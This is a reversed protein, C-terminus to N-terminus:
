STPRGPSPLSPIYTTSGMQLLSNYGNSQPPPPPQNIPWVLACLLFLPAPDLACQGRPPEPGTLLCCYDGRRFGALSVKLQLQRTSVLFRTLQVWPQGKSPLDAVLLQSAWMGSDQRGECSNPCSGPQVATPASPPSSTIDAGVPSHFYRANYTFSHFPCSNQIRISM